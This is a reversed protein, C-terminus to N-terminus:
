GAKRIYRRILGLEQVLRAETLPLAILMAQMLTTRIDVFLPPAWKMRLACLGPDLLYTLGLLWHRSEVLQFNIRRFIHALFSTAMAVM